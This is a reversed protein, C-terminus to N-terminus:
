LDHRYQMISFPRDELKPRFYALVLTKRRKPSQPWLLNKRWEPRKFNVYQRSIHNASSTATHTNLVKKSTWIHIPVEFHCFAAKQCFIQQKVAAVGWLLCLRTWYSLPTVCGSLQWREVTLLYPLPDVYLYPLLNQTANSLTEPFYRLRRICNRPESLSLDEGKSGAVMHDGSHTYTIPVTQV